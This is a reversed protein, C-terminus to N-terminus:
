PCRDRVLSLRVDRGPCLDLLTRMPCETEGRPCRFAAPIHGAAAAARADPHATCIHFRPGDDIYIEHNVLYEYFDDAPESGAGPEVFRAVVRIPPRRGSNRLENQEDASLSRWWKAVEGAQTQSLRWPLTAPKVM